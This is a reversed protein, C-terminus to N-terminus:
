RRAKTCTRAEGNRAAVERSGERVSVTHNASSVPDTVTSLGVRATSGTAAVSMYDTDSASTEDIDTYSGSWSGLAIDSGPRAYQTM